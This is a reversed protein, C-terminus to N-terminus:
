RPISLKLALVSHIVFYSLYEPLHPNSQPFSDEKSSTFAVVINRTRLVVNDPFAGFSCYDM